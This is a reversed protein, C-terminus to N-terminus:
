FTLHLGLWVVRSGSDPGFFGGPSLTSTVVGFNAGCCSSNPNAFHPTNTFGMADARFQLAFRETLKFTRAISLNMNFYSPGRFQDRGTNGYHATANGTIVPPAFANPNFYHCSLNTASCSYGTPLVTGNILQYRGVLDATQISGNANLPGSAATVTFPLGGLISIMPNVQWGGLIQNWVGTTLWPQGKGFPLNMVGYIEINYTRDFSASGRNKYWFTPYPFNMSNLEENDEYDIAHSWTYVASLM